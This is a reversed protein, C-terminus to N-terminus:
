EFGALLPQGFTGSALEDFAKPLAEAFAASDPVLEPDAAVGIMLKGNYSVLVVNLGLGDQVGFYPYMELMESGMSYMPFDPGRVNSVMLNANGMLGRFQYWSAVRLLGIPLMSTVRAWMNAGDAVDLDKLEQSRTHIRIVRKQPDPEDVPLDVFMTSVNCGMETDGPDRNDVPVLARVGDLTNVDVGSEECHSRLAGTVAALV